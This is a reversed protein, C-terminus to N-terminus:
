QIRTATLLIPSLARGLLKNEMVRWTQKRPENTVMRELATQVADRVSFENPNAPDPGLDEVYARWDISTSSLLAMGELLAHVAYDENANTRPYTTVSLMGGVRLMNAADAISSITTDMHTKIDRNSNPLYGLNYCVLGVNEVQPLLPSHSTHLITVHDKLIDATLLKALRDRTTECAEKQIDICILQSNTQFSATFLM